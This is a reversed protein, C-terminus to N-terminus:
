WNLETKLDKELEKGLRAHTISNPHYDCGYGEHGDSEGLDLVKIKPTVFTSLVQQQAEHLKNTLMPSVILYIPKGSYDSQVKAILNAMALRYEDTVSGDWYDNTGINILIADPTYQSPNWLSTADDALTRSYRTLITPNSPTKEGYSRWAGIGSWAIAHLDAGLANAALAAYTLQQNSTDLTYHCSPVIGEIGYGATISDGIVLLRRQPAPSLTLLSGDVQPDSIFSTVGATSESVRTLRVTHIGSALNAALSYSHSGIETWLDQTNNDVRVVFRVSMQSEINISAKSGEFRFEIASGPWTFKAQGNINRDFRGILRSNNGTFSASIVTPASSKNDKSSVQNLSSASAISTSSAKSNVSANSPKTNTGGGACSLLLLSLTSILFLNKKM